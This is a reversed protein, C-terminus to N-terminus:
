EPHMYLFFILFDEMSSFSQCLCHLGFINSKCMFLNGDNGMESIIYDVNKEKWFIVKWVIAFKIILFYSDDNVSQLSTNCIKSLENLVEEQKWKLKNIKNHVEINNLLFAFIRIQWLNLYIDNTFWAFIPWTSLFKILVKSLIKLDNAVQVWAIM